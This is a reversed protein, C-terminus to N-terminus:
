YVGGDEVRKSFETEGGAALIKAQEVWNDRSARGKFGKLNADMWALEDAGWSAIQDFHYFGMEHLLSELKPGVGKIEKLNDAQGGKPASLAAPKTGIEEDDKGEDGSSATSTTKADAKDEAKATDKAKDDAKAKPAEPAAPKAVPATASKPAEPAAAVKPEATASAAAAAPTAGAPETGMLKGIAGGAVTAAVPAEGTCVLRTFVLGLFVAVAVGAMLAGIFGVPEITGWLVAIGAIASLAWCVIQCVTWNASNSM